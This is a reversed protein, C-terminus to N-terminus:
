FQADLQTVLAPPTLTAHGSADIVLAQVFLERAEEAGLSPVRRTLTLSGSPGITGAQLVPHPHGLRLLSVGRSGPVYRHACADSFYLEVREGPVGFVDVRLARNERPARTAILDRPTGSLADEVSGGALVLAAPAPVCSESGSSPPAGTQFACALHRVVSGLDADVGSGRCGSQVSNAGADGGVFACDSAFFTCTALAAGPGGDGAPLAGPPGCTGLHDSGDGGVFTSRYLAISSSAAALARGGDLITPPDAFDSADGGTVGCGVIAVDACTEIDIGGGGPAAAPCLPGDFGDITCGSVRVGGACSRLRLAPGGVGGAIRVGQLTVRQSAALNEIRVNGSVLALSGSDAVIDLSKGDVFFPAYTGSKVLLVDGDQAAVIAAAVDTFDGGGSAAVVHVDAHAFPALALLLFAVHPPPRM